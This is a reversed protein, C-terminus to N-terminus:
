ESKLGAMVAKHFEETKTVDIKAKEAVDDKKEDQAELFLIPLSLLLVALLFRKM